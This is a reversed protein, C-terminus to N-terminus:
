DEYYESRMEKLLDMTEDDIFTNQLKLLEIDQGDEEFRDLRKEGRMIKYLSWMLNKNIKVGKDKLTKLENHVNTNREITGKKDKDRIKRSKEIRSNIQNLGVEREMALINKIDTKPNSSEKFFQLITTAIKEFEEFPIRGKKIYPLGMETVAEYFNEKEIEAIEVQEIFIPEEIEEISWNDIDELKKGVVEEVQKIQKKTMKAM